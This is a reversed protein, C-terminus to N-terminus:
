QERMYFAYFTAAITGAAVFFGVACSRLVSQDTLSYLFGISGGVLVGWAAARLERPLAPAVRLLGFVLLAMGVGSILALALQGYSAPGGSRAIFSAYAGYAIGLLVPVAVALRSIHRHDHRPNDRRDRQLDNRHDQRHDQRYRHRRRTPIAAHAM